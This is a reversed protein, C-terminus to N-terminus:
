PYIDVKRGLADSKEILRGSLDYTFVTAHSNADRRSTLNGVTDYAYVTAAKGGVCQPGPALPSSREGGRALCVQHIM